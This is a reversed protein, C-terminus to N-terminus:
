KDKLNELEKELAEIKRQKKAEQEQQKETQKKERYEKISCTM